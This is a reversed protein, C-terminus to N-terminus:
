NGSKTVGHRLFALSLAAWITDLANDQTVGFQSTDFGALAASAILVALAAMAYTKLGSM